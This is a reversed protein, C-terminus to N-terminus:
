VAHWQAMEAGSLPVAVCVRLGSVGNEVTLEGGMKRMFYDSIYLGLGAGEVAKANSGRRFKEKLFPLEQQSVGGGFDEIVILLRDGERTIALMIDTGAYKYSNAYINDLVQQLRLRDARLLCPPLAAVPITSRHLYDANELMQALEGSEMDALTVSLQELEELTATFLNTVLTNIQDAKRIIQTYNDRIRDSEALALGVESAAKISAVPTKIDHSLEAVLEKKAANARAEALRAKKLESRMLDFSETFAGFVNHRDMELPVDLNGGAVRRAFDKLKHFPRVLINNLYASYGLVTATQLLMIVAVALSLKRKRSEYVADAGNYVILKGVTREGQRIDLMTDRHATATIVSESLGQTTRFLVRGEGDLVVYDLGNYVPSSDLDDWDMELRKLVENIAVTDQPSPVDTWIFYALVATELFLLILVLALFFNKKM